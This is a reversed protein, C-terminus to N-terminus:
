SFTKVKQDFLFAEFIEKLEIKQLTNETIRNAPYVSNGHHFLNISIVKYKDKLINDFVEYDKANRGFGHFALLTEDGNGFVFYELVFEKYRFFNSM